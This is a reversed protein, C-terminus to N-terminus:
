CLSVYLVEVCEHNQPQSLIEQQKFKHGIKNKIEKQWFSVFM